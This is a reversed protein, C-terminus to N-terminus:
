GYACIASMRCDVSGATRWSTPRARLCTVPSRRAGTGASACRSNSAVNMSAARVPSSAASSRSKAAFTVLM